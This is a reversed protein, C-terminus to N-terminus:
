LRKGDGEVEAEMVEVVVQFGVAVEGLGVGAM